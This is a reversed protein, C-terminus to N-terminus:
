QPSWDCSLAVAVPRSQSTDWGAGEKEVVVCPVRRAGVQVVQGRVESSGGQAADPGALVAVLVVFLVALIISGVALSVARRVNM